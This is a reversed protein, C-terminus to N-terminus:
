LSLELSRLKRETANIRQQLSNLEDSHADLVYAATTLPSQTYRSAQFSSTEQSLEEIMRDLEDFSCHLSKERQERTSRVNAESSLGPGVGRQHLKHLELAEELGHFLKFVADQQEWILNVSHDVAEQRKRLKDQEIMLERVITANEVIESDAALAASALAGFHNVQTHIRDSWVQLLEKVGM